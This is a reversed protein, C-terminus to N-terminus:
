SVLLHPPVADDNQENKQRQRTADKHGPHSRGEHETPHEHPPRIRVRQRREILPQRSDILMVADKADSGFPTTASDLKTTSSVAYEPGSSRNSARMRSSFTSM